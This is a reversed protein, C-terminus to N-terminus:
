LRHQTSSDVAQWGYDIGGQAQFHIEDFRIREVKPAREEADRQSPYSSVRGNLREYSISSIDCYM